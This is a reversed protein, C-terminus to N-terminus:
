FYRNFTAQIESDFMRNSQTRMPVVAGVRFNALPSLQFHLGSTLNLMDIRNGPVGILGNFQQNNIPIRDSNQLTTTYHLEIVGAIGRLYRNGRDRTLWRGLTTDLHLLNQETYTGLRGNSSDVNNGSAAFDLETFSQIFWTENPTATMAVFPMLHVAQNQVTLRNTRGNATTTTVVDSGTPLGVGLGGSIGM